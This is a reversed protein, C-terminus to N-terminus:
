NNGVQGDSLLFVRRSSHGETKAEFIDKLPGLINTGGFNASMKDVANQLLHM